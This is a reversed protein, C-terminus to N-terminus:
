SRNMAGSPSMPRESDKTGHAKAYHLAADALDQSRLGVQQAAQLADNATRGEDLMLYPILLAGVRNASGCHVLAPRNAAQELVARFRDFDADGLTQPTVPINEYRLGVARVAAAEDFGRSETPHRLDIVTRYGADALRQFHDAPPQGAAAVDPLPCSGNMLEAVVTALAPEATPQKASETM